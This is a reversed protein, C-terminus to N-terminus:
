AAGVVNIGGRRSEPAVFAFNASSEGHNGKDHDSDEHTKHQDDAAAACGM